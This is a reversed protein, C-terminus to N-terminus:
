PRAAAVKKVAAEEQALEELARLQAAVQAAREVAVAEPLLRIMGTTVMEKILWQEVGKEFNFSV